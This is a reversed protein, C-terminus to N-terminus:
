SNATKRSWEPITVLSPKAFIKLAPPPASKVVAQALRGLFTPLADALPLWCISAVRTREHPKASQKDNTEVLGPRLSPSWLQPKAVGPVLLERRGDNVLGYDYEVRHRHSRTRHSTFKGAAYDAM